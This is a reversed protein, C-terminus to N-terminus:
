LLNEYYMKKQVKNLFFINIINHQSTHEHNRCSESQNTQLRQDYYDCQSFKTRFIQFNKTKLDRFRPIHAHTMTHNPNIELFTLVNREYHNVKTQLVGIDCNAQIYQIQTHITVEVM